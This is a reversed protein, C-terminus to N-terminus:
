AHEGGEPDIQTWHVSRVSRRRGRNNVPLCRLEGACNGSGHFKVVCPMRRGAGDVVVVTVGVPFAKAVSETLEEQRARLAEQADTLIQLSHM